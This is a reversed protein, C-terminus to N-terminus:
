FLGMESIKAGTSWKWNRGVKATFTRRRSWLSGNDTNVKHSLLDPHRHHGPPTILCSPSRYPSTPLPPPWNIVPFIHAPPPPSPTPPHPPRCKAIMDYHSNWNCNQLMLKIHKIYKLNIINMYPACNFVVIKSDPVGLWTSTNWINLILPSLNIFM